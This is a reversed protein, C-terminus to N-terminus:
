VDSSRIMYACHAEGEQADTKMEAYKYQENEKFQDSVQECVKACAITAAQWALWQQHTQMLKYGGDSGREIQKPWDGNPSIWEEFEKRLM